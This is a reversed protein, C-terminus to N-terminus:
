PHRDTARQPDPVGAISAFRDPDLAAGGILFGDMGSGQLLDAANEPTVSGGYLVRVRDLDRRAGIAILLTERAAAADHPTAALGTGIAWVPEYAVVLEAEPPDQALALVQAVLVEETLREAREEETEGLCYIPVLRAERARALRAVLNEATDGFLRRRESHGIIAYRCGAEAVMAASTEGTFAGSVHSAVSQAALSWRGQPDSAESFATFPPAVALECGEPAAAGLRQGLRRTYELAGARGSNMKWNAVYLRKM